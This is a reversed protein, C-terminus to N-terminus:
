AVRTLRQLHMIAQSSSHNTMSGGAEETRQFDIVPATSTVLSTGTVANGAGIRGQRMVMWQRPSGGADEDVPSVTTSVSTRGHSSATEAVAELERAHTRNEGVHSELEGERRLRELEAQPPLHSGYENALSMKSKGCIEAITDISARVDPDIAALIESFSFASPPPLDHKPRTNFTHTSPSTTHKSRRFPSRVSAQMNSPYPSPNVLIPATTTTSSPVPGKNQGNLKPSQATAKSHEPPPVSTNTRLLTSTAARPPATNDGTPDTPLSKLSDSGPEKVTAEGRNTSADFVHGDHVGADADAARNRGAANRSNGEVM